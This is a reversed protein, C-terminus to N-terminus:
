PVYYLDITKGVRELPIYADLWAYDSLNRTRALQSVAVWGIVREHPALIHLQPLPERRLDATGRYALNLHGIRLQAARVELRHLDQGWDLDSDVLVREPHAVMENFYPLYDPWARWLPSLQWALVALLAATGLTGPNQLDKPRYNPMQRVMALLDRTRAPEDIASAASAAAAASAASGALAASPRRLVRWARVTLDAAGVAFFPYVILIHRIGINIHSVASAFVLIAIVVALPAVGWSDGHRWGRLALGALGIPGAILLPIPTKVALAVLYFYWWGTLRTEGLLYSLHGSDNHAKVAVIGNMLDKLERPLWVHSLLVGVGHAFGHQQLLYTVAWNFRFAVGAPDAVRPGYALWIPLLGVLAALGFGGARRRWTPLADPHPAARAPQAGVTGAGQRRAVVWETLSLVILAVGIFPVSSFKTVVAVGSALGFFIADALTASTLWRQLAYLALLITAAAAVDLSALAAHGLLPPVSVTLVVALLAAGASTLLRRAWLWTAILLLVLFPLMGLRALTLDRWYAGKSYLIHLGEPTGEPPPTGFSRAGALYPGIALFVRALPPHETDYEYKGRDLLEIGAALHEPEDWTNSYVRWCGAALVCAALIVLVLARLALKPARAGAPAAGAAAARSV